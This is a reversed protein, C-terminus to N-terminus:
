LLILYNSPAIGTEGTAKKAQWWRGSVDSVDLIEHKAFSIENADDPNAEYSYIAKARYPYETPQSIENANSPDTAGGMGLSIGGAGVVPNNGPTLNTQSGIPAQGFRGANNPNDTATSPYGAIPTSTEFGNLQASTYMQPPQNGSVTTEPRGYSNSIPKSNRYSHHENGAGGSHDLYGRTSSRPTSGFYFIWIIIVMSQLIFGAAAAQKTASGDYVLSNVALTTFCLGAALYGVIAIAYVHSTQSGMVIALGIITVFMYTVAWWVYNPFIGQVDSIVCTVLSLLWGIMAMSLTVLAFPDGMINNVDLQAM